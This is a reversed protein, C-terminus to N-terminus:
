AGRRTFAVYRELVGFGAGSALLALARAVGARLDPEIGALYLAAGASLAVVDRRADAIEGRLIGRAV